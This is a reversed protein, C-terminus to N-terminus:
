QTEALRFLDDVQEDTMGLGQAAALLTPNNRDIATAYEWEEAVDESVNALLTDVAEKLGVKRLAKRIQLPTVSDPVVLVRPEDPVRRSKGTVCDIELGRTM